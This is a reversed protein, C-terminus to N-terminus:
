AQFPSKSNCSCRFNIESLWLVVTSRTDGPPQRTWSLPSLVEFLFVFLCVFLHGENKYLACDRGKGEPLSFSWVVVTPFYFQMQHLIDNNHCFWMVPGFYNLTKQFNAVTETHTTILRASFVCAQYYTSLTGIRCFSLPPHPHPLVWFAITNKM